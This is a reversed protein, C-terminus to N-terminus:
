GTASLAPLGHRARAKLCQSDGAQVERCPEPRQEYVRCGVESGIAGALAVCRPKRHNTGAMCGLWPTVQETLTPPLGRAEADAWYFSVRFTACCAGCAQCPNASAQPSPM